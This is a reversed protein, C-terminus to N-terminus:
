LGRRKPTNTVSRLKLKKATYSSFAPRTFVISNLVGFSSNAVVVIQDVVRLTWRWGKIYGM